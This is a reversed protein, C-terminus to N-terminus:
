PSQAGVSSPEHEEVELYALELEDGSVYETLSSGCEPCQFDYDRVTFELRCGLCRQRRPCCQIELEIEHLETDRVLAQFCFRLSDPDIGALEGIRLGVRRPRCGPYRRTEITVAELVSTAISMEHM